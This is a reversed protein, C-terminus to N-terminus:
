EEWLLYIPSLIGTPKLLYSDSWQSGSTRYSDPGYWRFEDDANHVTGFGNFRNGYATISLHHEGATLAGLALKHPAYAILGKAEGDVAVEMVAAAFHPVEVYVQKKDEPLHFTLQYTITGTYFPLGQYVADGFRLKKPAETICAADGCLTVGFDGLLYCWELNTKRGFPLEVVLENDGKRIAPLPLTEIVHDVYWGNAPCNEPDSIKEGNLWITAQKPREIALQVGECAIESAFAFRMRIRHTPIEDPIRWPQTIKDQRRPINLQKRIRNDITLVDTREQWPEEDLAYEAYDLLLVNPESLVFSVPETLKHRPAEPLSQQPADAAPEGKTLKLLLSDESYMRRSVYTSGGEWTAACDSVEGTLTDYIEVRWEGDIRITYLQAVDVVNRKRYVHCLFLWRADQDERMQYVLDESLMGKKTRVEVSRSQQLAELVDARAYEVCVCRKALALAREDPEADVLAPIHGAFIVTGGAQQFASLRELTTSRITYLGPVVIADYQMQGVPFTQGIEDMSCLGPLLSEDILDFDITGFLLWQMLKEYNEDMQDRRLQTQSNPGYFLWYSEMPYLVGVRVLAKGRTLATNLRAFHDEVYAYKSYWPSQYGISAPWDRKSEGEMSMFTLHHCRITVGLAALWDGQLKHGKFDFDWHTAGYCECMVGERGYQRAVSICQKATTYEKADTLIDIGPIQFSRYLRMSDALALMQSYLTRESMFHGTLAINHKECWSGLTDSFASAFREALHDHYHYRHVSVKGEPLEWLIEPLVDLLAVGYAQRYTENMDDTYSLTAAKKSFPEPFAFKGAMQPEDTFISPVSKGFEDGLAEFYREHTVEIFREVAKKNFVDIYTQDNFWPSEKALSVYMHWCSGESVPEDKGIQRYSQLCGNDDLVIQYSTVYYGKPKEGEGAEYADIAQLFAPYDACYGEEQKPLLRAFRQRYRLNETVIGGAAGSPYRDEDYLYCYMGKDKARRDARTALELFREGMYPTELGTRAHVHFGGMGMQEYIDIQEDVMEETVDCNWSWFPAGRYEGTPNAFLEKSLEPTQNKKYLM